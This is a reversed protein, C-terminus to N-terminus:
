RIVGAKLVDKPLPSRVLSKTSLRLGSPGAVLGDPSCPKRDAISRVVTLWEDPVAGRARGLDHRALVKAAHEAIAVDWSTRTADIYVGEHGHCLEAWAAACADIWNQLTAPRM